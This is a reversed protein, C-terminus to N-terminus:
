ERREARPAPESAPKPVAREYIQLETPGVRQLGPPIEQVDMSGFVLLGGPSLATALYVIARAATERAFYVFVNRCFILDFTGYAPPLPLLLNHEAFAVVRRLRDDIEIRRDPLEHYAPVLQEPHRVSWQGYRGQRAVEINRSVLDTGLVEL